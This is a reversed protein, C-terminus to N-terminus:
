KPWRIKKNKGSFTIVPELAMFDLIEKYSKTLRRYIKKFFNKIWKLGKSFVRKFIDFIGETLLDANKIEEEVVMNVGVKVASWFNYYGTKTKKGAISKVKQTSKFTVDPKVVKLLKEVYPDSSNVVKHMTPKNGEFDTVLFHDATGDNDGFKVKGTMAEFTFERAFEPTNVFVDRLDNKFARHAEDARKLIEVEAFKGMRELDTKSGKIGFKTMDTSPLLDDIHGKLSNVAKTTNGMKKMATYFTATAEKKEGGMLIADGTKVSIRRKGIIIDTKPTLTSGRPKGPKFYEAWEESAPYTNDPMKGGDGSMNLKNVIKKGVEESNDILKSVFKPGGAASLIVKEMDLAAKTDAEILYHNRFKIM